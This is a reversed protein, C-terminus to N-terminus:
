RNCHVILHVVPPSVPHTTATTFQITCQLRIRQTNSGKGMLQKGMRQIRLGGSM